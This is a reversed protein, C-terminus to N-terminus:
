VDCLSSLSLGRIGVRQLLFNRLFNEVTPLKTMPFLCFSATALLLASIHVYILTQTKGAAITMYVTRHNKAEEEIKNFKILVLDDSIQDCKYMIPKIQGGRTMNHAPNSSHVVSIM